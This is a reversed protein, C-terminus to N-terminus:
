KATEIEKIARIVGNENNTYETIFNAEKKLDCHANKMACSYYATKMMELDNLYDGFVMTEDYNINFKDQIYKIAVGKNAKSSMIDLWHIGSPVIKIDKVDCDKFYNFSNEQSNITDLVNVKFVDDNIDLLSDVKIIPAQTSFMSVLLEKAKEDEVYIANKGSLVTYADPVKRGIEVLKDINGKSIYHSYICEDKYYVVCGNECIFMLSDKYEEVKSLADPYSRGTAISMIINREKLERLVESFEASVEHNSNLLTGDMDTAILKLM